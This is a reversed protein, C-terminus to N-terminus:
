TGSGHRSPLLPPGLRLRAGPAVGLAALTGAAAELTAVGPRRPGRALRFAPVAGRAALVTCNGARCPWSIFAVDIAFRM